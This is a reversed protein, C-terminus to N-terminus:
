RTSMRPRRPRHHHRDDGGPDVPDIHRKAVQTCIDRRAQTCPPYGGPRPQPKPFVIPPSDPVVPAPQPTVSTESGGHGSPLPAPTPVIPPGGSEASRTSCSVLLALAVAPLLIRNM